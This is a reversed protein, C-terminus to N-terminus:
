NFFVKELSHTQAHETMELERHGWPCLGGAEEAWTFKWSLISSHTAM